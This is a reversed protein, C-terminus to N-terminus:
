YEKQDPSDGAARSALAAHTKFSLNFSTSHVSGDCFVTNWTSAHASGFSHCGWCTDHSVQSTMSLALATNYTRPPDHGPTQEAFRVCDGLPCSYIGAVDGWFKGNEYADMPILKEAALYTKSLGDTIQKVRVGKASNANTDVAEWIGPLGVLPNPGNDVPQVSAGGNLAYDSRVSKTFLGYNPVSISHGPFLPYAQAPRRTPCNLPPIPAAFLNTVVTPSLLPTASTGYGMVRAWTTYISTEEMHPLIAVIWTPTTMAAYPNPRPKDAFNAYYGHNREYVVSALGIQKLNNACQTRRAAERAAQAAPLLMAILIGIIAIVVLLEVLTFGFRRRLMAYGM